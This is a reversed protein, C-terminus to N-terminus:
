SRERGLLPEVIEEMKMGRSGKILIIDKKELNNMIFDVADNNELFSVVRDEYMGQKLAGRAIFEAMKGVTVLLDLNNQAAYEGVKEHWPPGWEGMELMDGLVAIKRGKQEKQAFEVLVDIAAQMSDPNANYADNIIIIDKIGRSIELRMKEGKVKSLGQKIEEHDLGFILGVCIAALANYVNHKGPLPIYYGEHLQNKILVDFEMGKSGLSKINVARYDGRTLGFLYKKLTIKNCYGYLLEDDFNVVAKGQHDMTKFVETKAKLIQEKSGLKEIHSTGINTIVAVEPKIINSLNEIEGLASMGIETVGIEINKDLKFLTLPLGIHNNFNGPNKLVMKKVSLVSSIMEKTTTKGASGTVAVFPINFKKRYYAALEQLAKLTDDVFILNKFKDAGEIPKHTLSGVAGKKYAEEIFDHGDFNEGLLPVFLEGKKIKRSDISVGSIVSKYHPNKIKGQVAKVAEKISLM